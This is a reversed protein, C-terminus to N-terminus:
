KPRRLNRKRIADKVIKSFVSKTLQHAYAQEKETVDRITKLLEEVTTNNLIFREVGGRVLTLLEREEKARRLNGTAAPRRLIGGASKRRKPSRFHRASGKPPLCIGATSHVLRLSSSLLPSYGSRNFSPSTGKLSVTAGPLATM